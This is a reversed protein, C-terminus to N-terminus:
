LPHKLPRSFNSILNDESINDYISFNDRLLKLYKAKDHNKTVSVKNYFSYFFFTIKNIQTINIDTKIINKRPEFGKFSSHLFNNLQGNSLIPKAPDKGSIQTLKSFYNRIYSTSQGTDFRDDEKKIHNSYELSLEKRKDIIFNSITDLKNKQNNVTFLFRFLNLCFSEIAEVFNSKDISIDFNYNLKFVTLFSDSLLLDITLYKYFDKNNQDIIVFYHDRTIKRKKAVDEPDLNSLYIEIENATAKFFDSLKSAHNSNIIQQKISILDVDYIHKYYLTM